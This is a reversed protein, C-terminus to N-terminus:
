ARLGIVKVSCLGKVCVRARETGSVKLQVNFGVGLCRFVVGVCVAGVACVRV